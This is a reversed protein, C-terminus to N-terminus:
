DVTSLGDTALEQEFKEWSTWGKKTRWNQLRSQIVKFDENDELMTVIKEWVPISLVVATPKGNQGVIFQSTQIIESFSM